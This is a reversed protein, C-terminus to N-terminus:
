TPHDWPSSALAQHRARPPWPGAKFGPVPGCRHSPPHVPAGQRTLGGAPRPPHRDDALGPATAARTTPAGPRARPASPTVTAAGGGGTGGGGGARGGDDALVRGSLARRRAAAQTGAAAAGPARGCRRCGAPRRSPCVGRARALSTPPPGSWFCRTREGGWTHGGWAHRPLAQEPCHYATGSAHLIPQPRVADPFLTPFPLPPLPQSFLNPSRARARVRPRAREM